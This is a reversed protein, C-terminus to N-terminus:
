TPLPTVAGDSPAKVAPIVAEVVAKSDKPLLKELEGLGYKDVFALLEVPSLFRQKLDDPLSDYANMSGRRRAIMSDGLNGPEFEGYLATRMAPLVGTVNFRKLIHNIDCEEAFSQKTLVVGSCDQIVRDKPGYATRFVVVDDRVDLM